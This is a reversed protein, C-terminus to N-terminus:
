KQKFLTNYFYDVEKFMKIIFSIKEPQQNSPKQLTVLSFIFFQTIHYMLICTHDLNLWLDLSYRFIIIPKEYVMTTKETKSVPPAM